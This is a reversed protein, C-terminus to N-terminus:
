LNLEYIFTDQRFRVEPTLSNSVALYLRGDAAFASADTGGFTEFDEVREFARDKWHYIQSLIDTKPVPPAGEIFCTRVLYLGTATRILEFERGGPGGLTQHARFMCGDWAYLTSDGDIVAVALWSEGGEEFYTFARGGHRSFTQFHVFREGDWRYILSPSTHDAYALFRQGGCEFYTFNYGWCGDLAQFEEFTKGNWELIRSERPVRPVATPITVGQALGLFHRGDFSFHYWQKCAFTPISQFLTWAGAERLYINSVTTLDYPGSGTRLSAVALYTKGDIGFVLIDEGGPALLREHEVFRGEAWLYIIADVDSNGGNMHPAQGEVDEALQPIALFLSGDLNFPLATRAGSTPLTQHLRLRSGSAHLQKTM